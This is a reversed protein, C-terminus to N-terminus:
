VYGAHRPSLDLSNVSTASRNFSQASFAICLLLLSIIQNGRVFRLLTYVIAPIMMTIVQSIKRANQVSVKWRGILWDALIGSAIAFVTSLIFPLTSYLGTQEFPVGIDIFIRPLFTLLCTWSFAYCSHGLIIAWVGRNTLIKFYLRPGLAVEELQDNGQRGHDEMDRISQEIYLKEEHYIWPHTNPSDTVLLAFAIAWIIGFFGFIYFTWQWGLTISIVPALLFATLTGMDQGSNLFASLRTRETAPLWMGCMHHQSPFNSGEGIGLGIRAIFLPVVGYQITMDATLPIILTFVSWLCVGCYLVIKGGFRKALIGALVQSCLYGWYFASLLSAQTVNNWKYQEAMPIIAVSMNIRDLYCILNAFCLLIVVVFRQRIYFRKSPPISTTTTFKSTEDDFSTSTDAEPTTDQLEIDDDPLAQLM